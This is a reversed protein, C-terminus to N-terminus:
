ETTRQNPVRTACRTPPIEKQVEVLERLRFFHLVDELDDDTSRDEDVVRVAMWCPSSWDVKALIAATTASNDGFQAAPDSEPTWVDLIERWIGDILVTDADTLDSARITETTWTSRARDAPGTPNTPNASM